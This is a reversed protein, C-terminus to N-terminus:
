CRRTLSLWALERGRAALGWEEGVGGGCGGAASSGRCTKARNREVIRQCQEGTKTRIRVVESQAATEASLVSCGIWGISRSKGLNMSPSAVQGDAGDGVASALSWRRQGGLWGVAGM